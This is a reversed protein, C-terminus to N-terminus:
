VVFPYDSVVKILHYSDSQPNLLYNHSKADCVSPIKIGLISKDSFYNDGIIKTSNSEPDTNWDDPLPKAEVYDQDPIEIEYVRFNDPITELNLHRALESRALSLTSATYVMRTGVSNWRGGNKSAGEGDIPDHDPPYTQCIRYVIV